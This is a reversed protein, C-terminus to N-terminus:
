YAPTGRLQLPVKPEDTSALGEMKLVVEELEAQQRASMKVGKNTVESIKYLCRELQEWDDSGSIQM